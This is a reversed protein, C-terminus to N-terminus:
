LLRIRAMKSLRYILAFHSGKQVNQDVRSPNFIFPIPSIFKCYAIRNMLRYLM